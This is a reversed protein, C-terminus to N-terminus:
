EIEGLVPPDLVILWDGRLGASSRLLETRAPFPSRAWAV